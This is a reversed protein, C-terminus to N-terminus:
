HTLKKCMIYDWKDSPGYHDIDIHEEDLPLSSRIYMDTFPTLEKLDLLNILFAVDRLSSITLTYRNEKLIKLQQLVADGEPFEDNVLKYFSQRILNVSRMLRIVNRIIFPSGQLQIEEPTKTLKMYKWPRVVPPDQIAKSSLVVRKIIGMQYFGKKLYLKIARTNRVNVSLCVESIKKSKLVAFANDMLKEGYGKGRSHENVLVGYIWWNWTNLTDSPKKRLVITGVIVKEDSKELVYFYNSYIGLHHILTRYIGKHTYNNFVYESNLLNKVQESDKRQYRRFIIYQDNVM